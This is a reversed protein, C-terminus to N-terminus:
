LYDFRGFKNKSKFSPTTSYHKFSMYGTTNSNQIEYRFAYGSVSTVTCYNGKYVFSDGVGLVNWTFIRPRNMPHPKYTMTIKKIM